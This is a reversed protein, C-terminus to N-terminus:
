SALVQRQTMRRRVCVPVATRLRSSRAYTHHCTGAEGHSAGKKGEIRAAAKLLKDVRSAPPRDREGNQSGGDDKLGYWATRSTNEEDAESSRGQEAENTHGVDTQVRQGVDCREQNSCGASGKDQGGDLAVPVPM